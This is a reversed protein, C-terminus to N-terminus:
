ALMNFCFLHTRNLLQPAVQLFYFYLLIIIGEAAVKFEAAFCHSNLDLFFFRLLNMVVIFFVKYIDAVLWIWYCSLFEEVENGGPLVM